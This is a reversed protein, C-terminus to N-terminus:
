IKFSFCSLFVWKRGQSQPVNYGDVTILLALDWMPLSFMYLGTTQGYKLDPNESNRLVMLRFLFFEIFFKSKKAHM